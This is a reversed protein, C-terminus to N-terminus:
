VAEAAPNRRRGLRWSRFDELAVIAVWAYLTVAVFLSFRVAFARYVDKGNASDAVAPGVLILMTIVVNQWVAPSFRSASVGYLKSAFYLGFLLMWLSFMLLNPHIKLAFWFVAAFIGALFTSVLLERGAHRADVLSGQRGLSLSKMVTPMYVTPNTLVLLFAPFVIMATRAALWTSDDPSSPKQRSKAPKTDEPFLPYVVRQALVSLLIAIILEEVVTVAVAFSALGAAPILTIGVTLFTGVLAKGRHVSLDTGLYLGLAVLILGVAPYERLIPVVFLGLGCTLILLLSLGVLGKAPLPPSPAATLVFAFIPALYPLPRRLGYAAALALAVVLALRFVRRSALPLAFRALDTPM